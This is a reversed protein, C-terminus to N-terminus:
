HRSFSNEDHASAPVASNDDIGEQTAPMRMGLNKDPVVACRSRPASEETALQRCRRLGRSVPVSPQVYSDARRTRASLQDLAAAYRPLAPEDDSMWARRDGRRCLDPGAAEDRRHCDNPRACADALCGDDVVSGDDVMIALDAVIYM